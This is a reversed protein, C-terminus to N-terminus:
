PTRTNDFVRTIEFNTQIDNKLSFTYTVPVCQFSTIIDSQKMSVNDDIVHTVPFNTQIPLVEFDTQITSLEFDTQLERILFQIIYPIIAPHIHWSTGQLLETISDWAIGQSIEDVLLYWTDGPRNNVPLDGVWTTVDDPHHPYITDGSRLTM